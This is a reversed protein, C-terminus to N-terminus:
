RRKVSFIEKKKYVTTKGTADTVEVSDITVKTKVHDLIDGNRLTVIETFSGSALTSDENAKGGSLFAVVETHNKEKAFDLPTKGKNNRTEKNAGKSILYKVIEFHGFTAACHLPTYGPGAKGNVDAKNRILFKVIEFHGYGAAICLATSGRADKGNVDAGDAISKKVTNFDGKESAEHLESQTTACNM